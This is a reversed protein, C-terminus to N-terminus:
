TICACVFIRVDGEWEGGAMCRGGLDCAEEEEDEEEEEEDDDEPGDSARM